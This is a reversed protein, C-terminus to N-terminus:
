FSRSHRDMLEIIPLLIMATLGGAFGNNYLNLGGHFLGVNVAISLHIFGAAVGWKFGFKRSVPSLCTSAFAPVLFNRDNFPTDTILAIIAAALMAGIVIPACSSFGKGFAGFGVVSLIVGMVPGNYEGNVLLMFVMCAFGLIGMAIYSQEAYKKYFDHDEAHFGVLEKFTMRVGSALFGCIVFYSSISFLFLTLETQYSTSWINYLEHAIGINSYIAYLALGILGATFGVNYLNYGDHAKRMSAAVPGIIFGAMVGIIIGIVIGFSIPLGPVFATQTVAPALCTVQISPLVCTEWKKRSYKSYLYGGIIFPLMNLPDKGFLAFGSVLGLTGITLGTPKHRAFYLTAISIIGSLGVNLFAAGVGGVEVYDTVLASPSILIEWFGHALTLPSDWLFGQLIILAYLLLHVRYPHTIFNESATKARSIM